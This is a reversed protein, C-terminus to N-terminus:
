DNFNYDLLQIIIRPQRQICFKYIFIHGERLRSCALYVKLTQWLEVFCCLGASVFSPDTPEREIFVTSFILSQAKILFMQRPKMRRKGVWGKENGAEREPIRSM